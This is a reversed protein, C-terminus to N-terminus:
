LWEIIVRVTGKAKPLLNSAAVEQSGWAPKTDTTRPEDKAAAAGKEVMRKEASPASSNNVVEVANSIDASADSDLSSTQKSADLGQQINECKPCSPCRGAALEAQMAGYRRAEETRKGMCASVQGQCQQLRWNETAQQNQLQDIVTGMVGLASASADEALSHVQDDEKGPALELLVEANTRTNKGVERRSM